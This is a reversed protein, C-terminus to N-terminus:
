GRRIWAKAGRRVLIDHLTESVQVVFLFWDDPPLDPNKYGDFRYVLWYYNIYIEDVQLPFPGRSPIVSHEEYSLEPYFLM